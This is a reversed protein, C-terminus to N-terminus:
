HGEGVRRKKSQLANIVLLLVFSITLMSAAIATASAYDYQELQTIILLPVIETKMPMNGSIFVVSGYEGLARAFALTFGSALAPAIEPFVVYRFAQWKSAGLMRAAEETAPDMDELVPQVARVVFPLGVFMLAITIGLPTFAIKLGFAGAIRGIWGNESYLTTLAIGAVATPLAFPIDVIADFFRRGPFPYRVLVWAILLGLGVDALAASLSTTVTVRLAALVRDRTLIAFLEDFSLSSARVFIGALPVLVIILLYLGTFSLALPLGWSRPPRPTPQSVPPPGPRSASSPLTSKTSSAVTM